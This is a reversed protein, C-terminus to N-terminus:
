LLHLCVLLFLCVFSYLYIRLYYYHNNILRLYFIKTVINITLLGVPLKCFDENLIVEIGELKINFFAEFAFKPPLFLIALLFILKDFLEDFPIKFVTLEGTLIM